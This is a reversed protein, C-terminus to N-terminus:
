FPRHEEEPLDKPVTVIWDCLVNVDKRNQVKVESLRKHMFDLQKMPQLDFALNYNLDTKDPDISENSRYDSKEERRAYH